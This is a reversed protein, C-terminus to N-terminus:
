SLGFFFFQNEHSNFLNAITETNEVVSTQNHNFISFLGEM